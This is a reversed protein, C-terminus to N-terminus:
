CGYNTTKSKFLYNVWYQRKPKSFNSKYHQSPSYDFKRKLSLDNNTEFPYWTQNKIPFKRIEWNIMKSWYPVESKSLVPVCDMGYDRPCVNLQTKQAFSDKLKAFKRLVAWTGKKRLSKMDWRHSHHFRSLYCIGLKNWSPESQPPCFFHFPSMFMKLHSIWLFYTCQNDSIYFVLPCQRKWPKALWYEKWSHLARLRFDAGVIKPFCCIVKQLLWSKM